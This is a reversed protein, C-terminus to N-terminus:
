PEVLPLALPQDVRDDPVGPAQLVQEIFKEVHITQTAALDFSMALSDIHLLQDAIDDSSRTRGGLKPDLNAMGLKIRCERLADDVVQEAVSLLVRSALTQLHLDTRQTCRDLERYSVAARAHRVLPLSRDELRKDTVVRVVLDRAGTHTQAQHSLERAQVAALGPHLVSRAAPRSELHREVLGSGHRLAVSADAFGVDRWWSM